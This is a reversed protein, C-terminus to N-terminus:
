PLMSEVAMKGPQMRVTVAGNRDTRWVTIDRDKLRRIVEPAPHGFRNNRGVSVVAMRPRIADLWGESTSTTSGHHAVKLVDVEPLDWHRLMTKEGKEEIDGTMMVRYGYVTLLFVVSDNNTQDLHGHQLPGPHLFQWSVGPELTWRVGLPATFVIAGSRRLRDMLERELTTRPPHPNRIVHIVPLQEVVAKLGGIHDADGHTMVLWDIRQIGRAKLFPVVVDEGVERPKRRREWSEEGFSLSGGGDILIVQGSPTEIVASDGQGVDLFTIQLGRRGPFPMWLGLIWVSLLILSIWRHVGARPVRKALSVAIYVLIVGYAAMWGLSPPASHLQPGKWKGVVSTISLIGKLLFHSIGAPLWGMVPHILGLGLATLGLPIVLLSVAPVVWLNLFWSLLSIEHFYYVLLPFSAAQAVLPVALLQNVGPWSFPLCRSVPGVGALLALTVVFSLQFGPQFAQYPNWCLMGWLAAGWFSLTDKWRRLIVATLALSAMIVSRIVPAGAGTLVAYFPLAFIIILATKERTVGMRTLVVYLCGAFVGVNLGSIAMLHVLGLRIFDAEVTWPVESREGLLMGRMLGATEAPYVADLTSGLRLRLSDVVHDWSPPPVELISIDKLSSVTGRWHIGLQYLYLRDDFGGPNRAPDPRFLEAEVDLRIGRRLRDLQEQDEPSMLRISLPVREGSVYVPKYTGRIHVSSVQLMLTGRDGDVKPPEAVEGTLKAFVSEKTSSTPIHSVNHQDVWAMQTMGALLSSFFLFLFLGKRTLYFWIGGNAGTILLGAASWGWSFSCFSNAAIGALWGLAIILIPRQV